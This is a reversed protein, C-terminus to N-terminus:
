RALTVGLNFFCSPHSFQRFGRTGTSANNVNGYRFLYFQMEQSM